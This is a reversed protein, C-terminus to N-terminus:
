RSGRLSEFWRISRAVTEKLAEPHDFPGVDVAEVDAGRSRMRAATDLANFSPVTRDASGYYLRVPAQPTWDDVSNARFSRRFPHDDDKLLARLFTRKFLRRPDRPLVANIESWRRTGDYVGSMPACATVEFEGPLDSELHRHLAMTAHGGQSFGTLFLRGDLAFGVSVAARRAARLM